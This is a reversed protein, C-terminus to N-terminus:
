VKQAATEQTFPPLPPRAMASEEIVSDPCHFNSILTRM